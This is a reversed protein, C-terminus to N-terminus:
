STQFSATFFSLSSTCRLMQTVKKKTTSMNECVQKREPDEASRGEWVKKHATSMNECVQKHEEPSFGEWVQCHFFDLQCLLADNSNGTGTYRRGQLVWTKVCRSINRLVSVKKRATGMKAATIKKKAENQMQGIQQLEVSGYRM